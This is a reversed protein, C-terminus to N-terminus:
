IKFEEGLLNPIENFRNLDYVSRAEELVDAGPLMMADCIQRTANILKEDEIIIKSVKKSIFVDESYLFIIYNIAALKDGDSLQKFQKIFKRYRKSESDIFMIIETTSKLPFICIHLDQTHYKVDMNYINNVVNGQFDVVLSVTGQFAIPSLYELKENYFMYYENEWNKELRRKAKKFGAKHEEMDIENIDLRHNIVSKKNDIQKLAIQYMGNEELKKGIQRLYDKMAIQTIMKPTPSNIYNDPNEYEYFIKSDCERCICKFTGAQKVGKDINLLSFGIFVNVGYVQGNEAINKLCFAPLSHSNCFGKVEKKCVMCSTGKTLKRGDSILDNITKRYEVNILKEEDLCRGLKLLEVDKLIMGGYM